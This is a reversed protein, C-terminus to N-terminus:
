LPVQGAPLYEHHVHRIFRDIDFTFGYLCSPINQEVSHGTSNLPLGIHAGIPVRTGISSILNSAGDRKIADSSHTGLDAWFSVM